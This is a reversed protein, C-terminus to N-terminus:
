DERAKFPSARMSSGYNFQQVARAGSRSSKFADATSLGGMAELRYGRMHEASAAGMGQKVAEALARNYSPLLKSAAQFASGDFGPLRRFSASGEPAGPVPEEVPAATGKDPFSFVLSGKVDEERFLKAISESVEKGPVRMRHKEPLGMLAEANAEEVRAREADSLRLARVDMIELATYEQVYKELLDGGQSNDTMQARGQRPLGATTPGLQCNDLFVAQGGTLEALFAAFFVVDSAETCIMPNIIVGLRALIIAQTMWCEPHVALNLITKEAQGLSDQQERVSQVTPWHDGGACARPHGHCHPPADLALYLTQIQGSWPLVTATALALEVMEPHDGGGSAEHPQLFSHVLQRDPFFLPRPAGPCASAGTFQLATSSGGGKPQDGYDKYCIVAVQPADQDNGIAQQIGSWASKLGRKAGDLMSQMSGTVDLCMCVQLDVRELEGPGECAGVLEWGETGPLTPAETTDVDMPALGQAGAGAGAKRAYFDGVLQCREEPCFAQRCAPCEAPFDQAPARGVQRPRPCRARAEARTASFM